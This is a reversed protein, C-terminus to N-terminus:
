ISVWGFETYMYTFRYVGLHLRQTCIRRYLCVCMYVRHTYKRLYIFVFMFETRIYPSAYVGAHASQIDIRFYVLDTVFFIPHRDM